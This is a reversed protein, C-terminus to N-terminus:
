IDKVKHGMLIDLEQGTTKAQMLIPFFGKEKDIRKVGEVEQGSPDM